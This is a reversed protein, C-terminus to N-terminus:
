RLDTMYLPFSLKTGDRASIELLLKRPSPFRALLRGADSGEPMEHLSAQGGRFDVTQAPTPPDTVPQVDLRGSIVAFDFGHKRRLAEKFDRSATDTRRTTLLRILLSGTLNPTPGELETICRSAESVEMDIFVIRNAPPRISSPGPTIVIRRLGRVAEGNLQCVVPTAFRGRAWDLALEAVTIEGQGTPRQAAAPAAGLLTIALPLACALTALRPTRRPLMARVIDRTGHKVDNPGGQLM